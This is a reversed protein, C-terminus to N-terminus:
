RQSKAVALPQAFAPLGALRLASAGVLLGCAIAGANDMAGPTRRVAGFLMSQAPEVVAVLNALIHRDLLSLLAKGLNVVFEGFLM